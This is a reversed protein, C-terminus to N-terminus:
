CGSALPDVEFVHDECIVWVRDESKCAVRHTGTFKGAAPLVLCGGSLWFCPFTGVRNVATGIRVSPHLHGCVVLRGDEPEHAPDHVLTVGEHRLSAVVRMPFAALHRAVHRDHNGLVLTVDTDDHGEFFRKLADIVDASLSSPAHFMDGLLYLRSASTREVM